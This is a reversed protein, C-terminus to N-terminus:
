RRWRATSNRLNRSVMSAWTGLSSADAENHVVVTGVLGRKDAISQGLPGAELHVESGGAGGPDIQDLAPECRQGLLLDAAAGEAAGAFEFGHDFAIQLDVIVVRFGEDPGFGRVLDEVGEGSKIM